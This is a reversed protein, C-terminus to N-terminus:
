ALLAAVRSGFADLDANWEATRTPADAVLLRLVLGECGPDLSLLQPKLTRVVRQVKEHDGRAQADHLAAIREPAQKRFMAVVMPDVVLPPVPVPAAVPKSEEAFAPVVPAAPIATERVRNQYRENLASVEARLAAMEERHRRLLSRNKFLVVALVTIALILVALGVWMWSDANEEAQDVRDEADRLRAESAKSLSDREATALRELEALRTMGATAEAAQQAASRQALLMAEEYAKRHDGRAALTRALAEHAAIGEQVLGLSDALVAAQTYLDQAEKPKSIAALDMRAKIAAAADHLSDATTVAARYRVLAEKLAATPLAASQAPSLGHLFLCAIVFFIVRSRLGIRMM